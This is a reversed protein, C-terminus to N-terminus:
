AKANASIAAVVSNVITTQQISAALSCNEKEAQKLQLQLEREITRREIERALEKQECFKEDVSKEFAVLRETTEECCHDIKAELEKRTEWHEKLIAKEVDCFKHDVSREFGDIRDNLGQASNKTELRGEFNAEMSAKESECLRNHLSLQSNANRMSENQMSERLDSKVTQVESRIDASTEVIDHRLCGIGNDYYGGKSQFASALLAASAIDSGSGSYLAVPQNEVTSM